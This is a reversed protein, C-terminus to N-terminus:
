NKRESQYFCFFKNDDSSFELIVSKGNLSQLFNEKGVTSCYPLSFGFEEDESVLCAMFRGVITNFIEALTSDIFNMSEDKYEDGMVSVVIDESFEKGIVLGMSGTFPKRLEISIVLDCNDFKRISSIQQYKDVDIFALNAFSDKVARKLAMIVSNTEYKM